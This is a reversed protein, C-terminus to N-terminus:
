LYPYWKSDTRLIHGGQMLHHPLTGTDRHSMKVKGEEENEGTLCV